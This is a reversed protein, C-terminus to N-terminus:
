VAFRRQLLVCRANFGDKGVVAAIATCDAREEKGALAGGAAAAAALAALTAGRLISESNDNASASATTAAAAASTSRLSRVAHRASPASRSAIASLAARRGALRLM